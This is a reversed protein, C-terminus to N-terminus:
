KEYFIVRWYDRSTMIANLKPNLAQQRWELDLEQANIDDSLYPFRTVIPKLRSVTMNYTVEPHLCSSFFHFCDVGDFREQIQKVCEVVFDKGHTYCLKPMYYDEGMEAAISQIADSGKLGLYVKNVPVHYNENSPNINKIDTGRVYTLKILDSCINKILTTLEKRLQHLLPM